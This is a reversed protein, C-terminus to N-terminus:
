KVMLEFLIPYSPKYKKPLIKIKSIGVNKYALLNITPPNTYNFRSLGNTLTISNKVELGTKLLFKNFTTSWAPIGFDGIIIVAEDQNLVFESLNEFVHMKEKVSIGRLNLNIIIFSNDESKLTIFSAEFRSNLMIRGYRAPTDKSLILSKSDPSTQFFNNAPLELYKTSRANNIGVIDINNDKAYEFLSVVGEDKVYNQYVITRKSGGETEIDSFINASSSIAFYSFIFVFIFIVSQLLYGNLLAYTGLILSLIYYHFMYANIHYIVPNSSGDFFSM